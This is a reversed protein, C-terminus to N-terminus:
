KEAAQFDSAIQAIHGDRGISLAPDQDLITPPQRNSIGGGESNAIKTTSMIKAMVKLWNHHAVITQRPQAM